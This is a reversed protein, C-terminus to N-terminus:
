QVGFDEIESSLLDSTEPDIALVHEAHWLYPVMTTYGTDSSCQLYILEEQLVQDASQVGDVCLQFAKLYTWQNTVDFLYDNQLSNRM